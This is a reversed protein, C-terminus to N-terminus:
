KESIDIPSVMVVVQLLMGIVLFWLIRRGSVKVGKIAWLRHFFSVAIPVVTNIALFLLVAFSFCLFQFNKPDDSKINSFYQFESEIFVSGFRFVLLCIFTFNWFPPETYTYTTENAHLSMSM